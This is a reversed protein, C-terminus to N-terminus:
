CEWSDKWPSPQSKRSALLLVSPAKIQDLVSIVTNNSVCLESHRPREYVVQNLTHIKIITSCFMFIYLTSSTSVNLVKLNSCNSNAHRTTVGCKPNNRENVRRHPTKSFNEKNNTRLVNHKRDEWRQHKFINGCSILRYILVCFWTSNLRKVNRTFFRSLPLLTWCPSSKVAEPQKDVDPDSYM